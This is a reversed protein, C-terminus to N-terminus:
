KSVIDVISEINKYQGKTSYKVTVLSESKRADELRKGEDSTFAKGWWSLKENKDTMVDIINTEGYTRPSLVKITFTLEATEKVSKDATAGPNKAAQSGESAGFSVYRIKSIDFGLEKLKSVPIRRLGLLERVAQKRLDRICERQIYDERIDSPDKEKGKDKSYFPNLTSAIGFAHITTTEGKFTKMSFDGECRYYYHGPKKEHWFKEPTTRNTEHIGVDKAIRDAGANTINAMRQDEGKTESDHSVFDGPYARKIIFNQIMNLAKERKDLHEAVSMLFDKEEIDSRIIGGEVIEGDVVLPQDQNMDEPPHPQDVAPTTKSEEM